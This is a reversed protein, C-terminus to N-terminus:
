DKMWEAIRKLTESRAPEWFKFPLFDHIADPAEDYTVGNKGEGCDKAIRSRLVRMQDLLREAGGSSIFTRPWGKFSIDEMAPTLAAPSLYFSTEAAHIGHPGLYARRAYDGIGFRLEPTIDYTHLLASSGPTYHSNSLDGRPSLLLLAGPPSPISNQSLSHAEILYRTLALALNGGASDGVLVINEAKFGVVEILYRYGALADLLAAPFPNEGNESSVLPKGVSLRYEISFTRKLGADQCYELLGKYIGGTIDNPTASGVIYGGGHLCYAIKEGASPAQGIPIEHGPADLFYGPIRIPAVNAASAFSAIPEVISSSPIPEVTTSKITPDHDIALHNPM